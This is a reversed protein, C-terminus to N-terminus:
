EEFLFEGRGEGAAAQQLVAKFLKYVRPAHASASYEAEVTERGAAGLSKRLSPSCLLRTLKEVWEDETAALLGNRGDRIITPNVGVPSCVAPVALAMYQLAKLGCKGRTWENEPLPMIGVDIASLDEIETEARWPVSEVEVGEIRYGEAGVVRLRFRAARALRQLMRRATDLHQVTSYSGSWGIVPPERDAGAPRPAYKETDITTPVVTVRANFGAAYSALYYNGAIVHSALRCISKTKGPFKLLRLYRNRAGNHRGHLFIADDFDFVVPVRRARLYNEVLAPGVMAAENYVYVLDFDKVRKLLGARRALARATLLVKRPTDGPASLLRHLEECRFPEFCVEAGLSGLRPAWQEMRFRQGPAKDGPYPVLALIRM